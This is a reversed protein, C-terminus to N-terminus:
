YLLFININRNENRLIDELVQRLYYYNSIVREVPDRVWTIIPIDSNLKYFEALDRYRFHGHIVRCGRPLHKPPPHSTSPFSTKESPLSIDIRVVQEKSYVAKLINRFSTGATKPIHISIIEIDSPNGKHRCPRILDYFNFLSEFM